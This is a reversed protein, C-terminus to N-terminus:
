VRFGLGKAWRFKSFRSRLRIGQVRFWGIDGLRLGPYGGFVLRLDVMGLRFRSCLPEPM